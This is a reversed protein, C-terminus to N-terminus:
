ESDRGDAGDEGSANSGEEEGGGRGRSHDSASKSPRGFANSNMTDVSEGSRKTFQAENRRDLRSENATQVRDRRKKV